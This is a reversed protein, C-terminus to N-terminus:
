ALTRILALLEPFEDVLFHTRDEFRHLTASPMGTAYQEAHAYPVVFDDQSHMIHIQEAKQELVTLQAPDFAFRACDNGTGDDYTGCPGALLFLGKIHFAVENEILYKALFMAGLSYGILIVESEILTAHREFWIKWEVYDANHKNPMDPVDFWYEEGLEAALWKKWSKYESDSPVDRLEITQLARLFDEHRGYSDGGGILIIQKKGNTM